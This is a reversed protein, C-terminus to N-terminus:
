SFYDYKKRLIILYLEYTKQVWEYIINITEQLALGQYHSPKDSKFGYSFYPM